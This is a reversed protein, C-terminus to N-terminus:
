YLANWSSGNFGYHKNDSTNFFLDGSNPTGPFTTGKSANIDLAKKDEWGFTGDLKAVINKAYTTDANPMWRSDVLFKGGIKLYRGDFDGSVLADNYNILGGTAKSNHIALKNDVNRLDLRNGIFLCNQFFANAGSSSSGAGILINNFNRYRANAMFNHGIITSMAARTFSTTHGIGYGVFTNLASGVTDNAIDYGIGVIQSELYWKTAPSISNLDNIGVQATMNIGSNSGLITNGFGKNLPNAAYYGVVTNHEGDVNSAFARLGYGVNTNKGGGGYAYTFYGPYLPLESAESNSNYWVLGNGDTKSVLTNPTPNISTPLTFKYSNAKVEGEIDVIDNRDKVIFLGDKNPLSYNREATIDDSSISALNGAQNRYDLSSTSINFSIDSNLESIKFNGQIDPTLQWTRGEETNYLQFVGKNTTFYDSTYLSGDIFKKNTDDWLGYYNNTMVPKELKTNILQLLAAEANVDNAIYDAIEKLTDYIEPASAKLANIALDIKANVQEKTDVNGLTEIGDSSKDITALNSKLLSLEELTVPEDRHFYSEILDWFDEQKPRDGNEFVKKLEQKSKM